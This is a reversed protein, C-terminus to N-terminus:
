LLEKIQLCKKWSSSVWCLLNSCAGRKDHILIHKLIPLLYLQGHVLCWVMIAYQPMSIFSGCVRSKSMLHLHTSVKVRWGSLLCISFNTTSDNLLM